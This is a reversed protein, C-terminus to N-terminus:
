YVQVNNLNSLIAKVNYLSLDQGQNYGYDVCIMDMNAAQAAKIDNVSDGVMVCFQNEVGLKKAAYNLPEPHPKKNSLDDGCVVVEFYIDIGLMQLLPLTFARNKNTICAIPVKKKQLYELIERVGTYLKSLKGSQKQYADFFLKRASWFPDDSAIGDVSNTLARHLLKDVGNGIWSKVKEHSPPKLGLQNFTIALSETLDPASDVLTGDLDFLFAKSKVKISSESMKISTESM